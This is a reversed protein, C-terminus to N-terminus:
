ANFLWVGKRWDFGELTVKLRGAASNNPSLLESNGAPFGKVKLAIKGNSNVAEADFVEGQKKLSNYIGELKLFRQMLAQHSRAKRNTVNKIKLLESRKFVPDRGAFYSRIQMQDVLGPLERGKFRLYPFVNLGRHPGPYVTWRGRQEYVDLLERLIQTEGAQSVRRTLEGFGVGTLDSKKAEIGAAKLKRFLREREVRTPYTHVRYILPLGSDLFYKGIERNAFIMTREILQHTDFLTAMEELKRGSSAGNNIRWIAEAVAGVSQQVEFDDSEIQEDFDEHAFNRDTITLVHDFGISKVTGDPRIEARLRWALREKGEHFSGVGFAIQEGLLPLAMKYGYYSSVARTAYKFVPDDQGHVAWSVDAFLVDLIMNDKSLDKSIRARRGGFADERDRSDHDDIAVTINDREDLTFESVAEGVEKIRREGPVKHGHMRYIVEKLVREASRVIGDGDSAAALQRNVERDQPWPRLVVPIGTVSEIDSLWEKESKDPESLSSRLIAYRFSGAEADTRRLELKYPGLDKEHFYRDVEHKLFAAGYSKAKQRLTYNHEIVRLGNQDYIYVTRRGSEATGSDIVCALKVPSATESQLRKYIGHLLSEAPQRDRGHFRAIVTGTGRVSIVEKESWNPLLAKFKEHLQDHNNEGRMKTRIRSLRDRLEGFPDAASENKTNQLLDAPKNSREVM